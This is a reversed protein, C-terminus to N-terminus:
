KDPKGEKCARGDMQAVECIEANGQVLSGNEEDPDAQFGANKLFCKRLFREM